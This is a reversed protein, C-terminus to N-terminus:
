IKISLTKIMTYIMKQLEPIENELDNSKFTEIYGLNGAIILQTELEYLSGYAVNL